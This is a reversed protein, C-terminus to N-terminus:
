GAWCGRRGGDGEDMYEDLEDLTVRQGYKQMYSDFGVGAACFALVLADARDPSELGRKRMDEKREAMLKGKSNFGLRRTTLQRHLVDDGNLISIKGTEVLRAFQVYLETGRNAFKEDDRAAEGNNVRNINWGAERIADCMPLGLGGGDGWINEAKLGLRKFETVFRGVAAMTDKERWRITEKHANGEIVQIVNEDGGAAFDCGAKLTNGVKAPPSALNRQLVTSTLILSEEGEEGFEAHIMSQVIASKPGYATIQEDIWRREIHPCDYATVTHRDYREDEKDWIKFFAGARGGPSSMVLLRSPQCREMALFIGDSVGKAEDIVYLLNQSAGRRHHGEAKHPDAASFGLCQSIETQGPATYRIRNETVEWGMDPGGLLETGKRLEPWLTESVQRYVGATIVTLSGPFSIMHWLIASVAIASTKGSGNAAKLAVRSEKYGLDRLVNFQWPYAKRNLWLQPFYELLFKKEELPLEKEKAPSKTKVVPGAAKPKSPRRYKTKYKPPPTVAQEDRICSSVSQGKNVIDLPIAPEVGFKPDPVPATEDM